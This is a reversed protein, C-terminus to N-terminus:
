RFTYAHEEVKECWSQSLEYPCEETIVTWGRNAHYGVVSVTLTKDRFEGMGKLWKPDNNKPNCIIKDGIDFKTM